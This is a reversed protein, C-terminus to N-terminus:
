KLYKGLTNLNNRIVLEYPIQILDNGYSKFIEKKLKYKINIGQNFNINEFDFEIKEEDIFNINQFPGLFELYKNAGIKFDSYHLNNIIPFIEINPFKSLNKIYEEIEKKSFKNKEFNDKDWWIQNMLEAKRVYAEKENVIRIIKEIDKTKNSFEHYFNKYNIKLIEFILNLRFFNRKQNENNNRLSLIIMDFYDSLIDLNDYQFLLLHYFISTLNSMFSEKENPTAISSNKLFLILVEELNNEFNKSKRGFHIWAIILRYIYKMLTKNNYHSLEIISSYNNDIFNEINKLNMFNFAASCIIDLLDYSIFEIKSKSLDIKYSNLMKFFEFCNKHHLKFRENLIKDECYM